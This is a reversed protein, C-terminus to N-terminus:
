SNRLLRVTERWPLLKAPERQPVYADELSQSFFKKLRVEQILSDDVLVSERGLTAGDMARYLAMLLNDNDPSTPNVMLVYLDIPYDIPFLVGISRAAILLATRYAKITAIHERRHPAGHITLRLIPFIDSEELSIRKILM